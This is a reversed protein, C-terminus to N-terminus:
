FALVRARRAIEVFYSREGKEDRGKAEQAWEVVADMTCAGKHSSGRLVMGFAAVASAFRFDPSAQSFNVKGDAISRVTMENAEGDNPWKYSLRVTLLDAALPPVSIKQDDHSPPSEQAPIVEYLATVTQGTRIEKGGATLSGVEKREDRKEYGILRYFGVQDPNFEVRLSVDKAVLSRSTESQGVTGSAFDRSRLGIRVLRHETQWPCIATELNISFPDGANPEPYDYRFSNILEDTWVLKKTPLMGASILQRVTTYSETGGELPFTSVPNTATAVFPNEDLQRNRDHGTSSDPEPNLAAPVDAMESVDVDAPFLLGMLSHRQTHAVNVRLRDHSLLVTAVIAGVAITAALGLSGWRSDSGFCEGYPLPLINLPRRARELEARFEKQVLEAFQRTEEVAKRAERSEALIKETAIKRPGVLEDLAFSTLDPDDLNIM